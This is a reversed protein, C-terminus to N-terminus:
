VRHKGCSMIDSSKKTQSTVTSQSDQKSERKRKSGEEKQIWFAPLCAPVHLYNDLYKSRQRLQVVPLAVRVQISANQNTLARGTPNSSIL